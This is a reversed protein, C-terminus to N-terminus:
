GLQAAIERAAEVLEAAILPAGTVEGVAFVGEAVRGKTAV